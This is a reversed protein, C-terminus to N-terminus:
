RSEQKALVSTQKKLLAVGDGLSLNAPVPQFNTATQQQKLTLTKFLLINGNGELLLRSLRWKNEGLRRQEIEMKSGKDIHGLLGWGINIDSTTAGQFKAIRLEAADIWIHGEAARFIITEKATSHFAPNPRFKLRVTERGDLEQRGDDSYLLADPLARVLSLFREQDKKQDSLKRQQEKPDQQLNDLRADDALREQPTLDRGNMSVLRAVIGDKTEVMDKVQTGFKTTKSLRFM